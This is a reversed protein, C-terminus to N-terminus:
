PSSPMPKTLTVTDAISDNKNLHFDWRLSTQDGDISVDVVGYGFDNFHNESWANPLWQAGDISAGATGVVIHVIGTGDDMCTSNYVACTREYAHFHGWIAFDVKGRILEELGNRIGEAVALDSPYDESSYPPRHGGLVVWPTKTRDVKELDQRIFEYQESGPYFDHETSFHLVHVSGYDFSYWFVTNGNDPMHFREFVPRACEGHSDDEYNGWSPHFGVGAAGSPDHEGGSVHDYEHNGVGVMYPVRDATNEILTFFHEWIWAQSRAYSIDGVHLVFDIEDRRAVMRNATGRAPPVLIGAGMDGFAIFRTPYTPKTVPASTFFRVDSLGSDSNGFRYYYKTAPELGVMTADHIFGPDRFRRAGTVNSPAGCMDTHRYTHSTGSVKQDLADKNKGYIVYPPSPTKSVWMLNMESIDTTLSLHAQMPLNCSPIVKSEGLLIYDSGSGYYRFQYAERMNLIAFSLSGEGSSVSASPIYLYDLYDNYDATAPSYVAIFDNVHPSPVGSWSITVTRNRVCLEDISVTVNVPLDPHVRVRNRLNMFESEYHGARTRRDLFTPTHGEVHPDRAEATAAMFGAVALSVVLLLTLGAFRM